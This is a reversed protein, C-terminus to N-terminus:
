EKIAVTFIEVATINELKQILCQNISSKASFYKRFVSNSLRNFSNTINNNPKTHECVLVRFGSMTLFNTISKITYHFYHNMPQLWIWKGAMIKRWKCDFAPVRIFLLAGDSMNNKIKKLLGVPDPIHELSHWMTVIDAMIDISEIDKFINLGLDGAYKSSYKNSEIGFVDYGYRRAEDIFYGKDCGFDLMTSPPPKFDIIKSILQIQEPLRFLRRRETLYEETSLTLRYDSEYYEKLFIVEPLSKNYYIDCDNCFVLSNCGIKIDNINASSCIRCIKKNSM